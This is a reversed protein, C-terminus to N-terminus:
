NVPLVPRILLHSVKMKITLDDEEVSDPTKPIMFEPHPDTDTSATTPNLDSFSLM